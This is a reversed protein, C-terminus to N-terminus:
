GHLLQGRRASPLAIRARSSPVGGPLAHGRAPIPSTPFRSGRHRSALLSRGWAPRSRPCSTAMEVLPFRSPQERHPLLQLWLLVTPLFCVDRPSPLPSGAPVFPSAGALASGHAPLAWRQSLSSRHCPRSCPAAAALAVPIPWRVTLSSPEPNRLRLLKLSPAFM